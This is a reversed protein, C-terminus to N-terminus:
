ASSAESWGLTASFAQWAKAEVVCDPGIGKEAMLRKYAEIKRAHTM